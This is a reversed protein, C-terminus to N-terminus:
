AERALQLRSELETLGRSVSRGPRPPESKGKLEMAKGAHASKGRREQM